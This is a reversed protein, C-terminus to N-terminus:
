KIIIKKTITTNKANLSLFYIGKSLRSVDVITSFKQSLVTRGNVDAITLSEILQNTNINLISQAPNPYISVSNEEFTEVDLTENAVISFDKFSSEGAEAQTRFVRLKYTNGAILNLFDGSVNFCSLETGGCSDYLAFYNWGIIGNVTVSGNFPMTFEFWVDALDQASDGSCGVENNIVAGSIGFYVDTSTSGVTIPEASACDDNTIVEFPQITFTKYGANDANALLRFVRLKYNTGATLGTFLEDTLGCQIETGGCSDYLAFINWSINGDVFVNGNVPMTFDYWMDAYDATTSTCGLEYNIETGTIEFDISTASATDLTINESTACTDNAPKEFAQITFSKYGANDANSLLRFVRLKYTTGATLGTMIESTLGCQLQTGGCSDYLAFINWSISGGIFVNGNVPMTFEYWIDAYDNTIGTCGVENNIDAGAIEFNVTTASATTVTINEASACDDNTAEQFAQITFSKYGAKDANSLLRFVRLKYTTGSTLNTFLENTSGCQIQTSGCNDYLTFINWYIGGDIFINGNVPMTFEYWIDAYDDTTGTCGEENNIDAGGIEFNVTTASATTVTITEASACDDNSVEQFAQINFSQYGTNSANASTRFVRLKYTTGSTLNTFLQSTNSCQLQLGGCSDYLAFINWSISGGVYVNGNFPMTFEFWVDAYDNTTGSCGEENNITATNIDFSYSTSIADVTITQATACTENAPQANSFAFFSLTFITFFYFHKM